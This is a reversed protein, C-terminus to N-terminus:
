QVTCQMSGGTSNIVNTTVVPPVYALYINVFLLNVLTV